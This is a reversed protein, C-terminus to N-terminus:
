LSNPLIAKKNVMVRRPLRVAVAPSINANPFKARLKAADDVSFNTGALGLSKLKPLRLIADPIASIMTDGLSLHELNKLEGLAAPVEFLDHCGFDLYRLRSFLRICPPIEQIETGRWVLRQLRSCGCLWVAFEELPTNLIELERLQTLAAIEPPLRTGCCWCIRLRELRKLRAIRAAHLDLDVHRLFLARARSANREAEELSWCLKPRGINM